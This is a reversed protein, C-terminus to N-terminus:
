GLLSPNIKSSINEINLARRAACPTSNASSAVSDSTEKEMKEDKDNDKKRATSFM